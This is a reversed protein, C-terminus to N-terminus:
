CLRYKILTHIFTHIYTHTHVVTEVQQCYEECKVVTYNETKSVNNDAQQIYTHITLNTHYTHIITLYTNSFRYFNAYIYTNYKHM